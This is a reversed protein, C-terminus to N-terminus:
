STSVREALGRSLIESAHAVMDALVEGAPRISKVLGSVQGAALMSWDEHGSANAGRLLPSILASQMGMPLAKIGSNEWADILPNTINRMTKGSYLRTVKTGEDDAAVIREKRSREQNAEETAIFV